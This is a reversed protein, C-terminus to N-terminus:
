AFHPRVAPKGPTGVAKGPAQFGRTKGDKLQTPFTIMKDRKLTNFAEETRAFPKGNVIPPKHAKCGDRCGHTLM